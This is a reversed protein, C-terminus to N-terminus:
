CYRLVINDKMVDVFREILVDLNLNINLIVYGKFFGLKLDEKLFLLYLLVM